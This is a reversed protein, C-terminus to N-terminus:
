ASPSKSRIPEPRDRDDIVDLAEESPLASIRSPPDWLWASKFKPTRLSAATVSKKRVAVTVGCVHCILHDHTPPAALRVGVRSSRACDM